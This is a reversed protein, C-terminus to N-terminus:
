SAVDEPFVARGVAGDADAELTWRYVTLLYLFTRWTNEGADVPLLEVSDPLVHAVYAGDVPPLEFMGADGLGHSAYRYAALQLAVERFVGGTKVDVLVTGLKPVRIVADLTGAYRYPVSCVPLEAHVPEVHWADLFRAYADVMPALEDPVDVPEGAYLKAAFTHVRTGRTAASTKTRNHAGRIEALRESVPQGTLVDWHDVAYEAATRAAWNILGPKALANLVTTVGPVKAGGLTYSHGNGHNRRTFEPATTTDTM